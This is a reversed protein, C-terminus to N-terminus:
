TAARSRSPKTLAVIRGEVTKSLEKALAEPDGPVMLDFDTSPQDLFFDRVTGGVLYIEGHAKLADLLPVTEVLSRFDM